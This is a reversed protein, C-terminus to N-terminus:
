TIAYEYCHPIVNWEKVIYTFFCNEKNKHLFHIKTVNNWDKDPWIKTHEVLNTLNAM